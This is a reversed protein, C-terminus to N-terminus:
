CIMGKGLEQFVDNYLYHMVHIATGMGKPPQGTVIRYLMERSSFVNMKM